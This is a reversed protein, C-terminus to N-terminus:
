PVVGEIGEFIIKFNKWRNWEDALTDPNVGWHQGEYRAGLLGLYMATFESCVPMGLFHIYKALVPFIHLPLRWGPYWMGKYKIELQSLIYNKRVATLEDGALTHTPRAIIIRKGTYDVPIFQKRITWLAEITGGESDTIIGSHHYIAKNDKSHVKEIIRIGPGLIRSQPDDIGFVDGRQIDM